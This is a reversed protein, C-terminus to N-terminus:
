LKVNVKLRKEYDSIDEIAENILKENSSSPKSCTSNYKLAKNSYERAKAFDLMWWYAIGTNYYLVTTIPENIRAKKSGSSEKLANEWIAIAKNLETNVNESDSESSIMEFAKEMHQIASELDSYDVNKGKGSAIKIKKTVPLFSFNSALINKIESLAKKDCKNKLDTFLEEKETNLKTILEATSYTWKEFDFNLLKENHEITQEFITKGDNSILSLNVPYTCNIQYYYGTVNKGQNVNFVDKTILKKNIQFEGFKANILVDNQDEVKKYGYLKLYQNSLKDLDTNELTIDISLVSNYTKISEDLAQLPLQTYSVKINKMNPKQAFMLVNFFLFLTAFGILKKTNFSIM